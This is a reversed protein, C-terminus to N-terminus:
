LKVMGAFEAQEVPATEEEPQPMLQPFLMSFFVPQAAEASCADAPKVSAFIVTALLLVCFLRDM